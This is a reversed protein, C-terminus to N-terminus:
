FVVSRWKTPVFTNTWLCMFHLQFLLNIVWTIWLKTKYSTDDKIYNNQMPLLSLNPTPTGKCQLPMHLCQWKLWGPANVREEKSVNEEKSESTINGMVVTAQSHLSWCLQAVFIVLVVSVPLSHHQGVPESWVWQDTQSRGSNRRWNRERETKKKEEETKRWM